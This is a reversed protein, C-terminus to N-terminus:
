GLDAANIADARNGTELLLRVKHAVETAVGFQAEATSAGLHPTLVLNPSDRLPSDAPLPETEYVDLAAGAIAANHLAKALAPEDVVGGRSANVVFTTPKMKGLADPGIIGRTEETLPVHVSIFDGRELVEELAVM